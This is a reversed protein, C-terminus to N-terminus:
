FYQLLSRCQEEIAKGYMTKVKSRINLEIGGSDTLELTVEIDSRVRPGVNGTIAQKM